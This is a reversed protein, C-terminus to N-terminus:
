ARRFVSLYPERRGAFPAGAPAARKRPARYDDPRPEQDSHESVEIEGGQYDDAGLVITEDSYLQEAHRKAQQPSDAEIRISKALTEFFTVEYIM